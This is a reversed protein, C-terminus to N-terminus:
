ESKIVTKVYDLLTTCDKGKEVNNGLMFAPITSGDLAASTVILITDPNELVYKAAVAVSEDFNKLAAEKDDRKASDYFVFTFGDFKAPDVKSETWALGFKVSQVASPYVTVSSDFINLVAKAAVKKDTHAVEDFGEFFVEENNYCNVAEKFDSTYKYASKYIENVYNLSAISCTNKAKETATDKALMFVPRPNRIIMESVLESEESDTGLIGKFQRFVSNTIIDTTAYGVTKYCSDTIYIGIVNNEDKNEDLKQSTFSLKQPLDNIILEGYKDEASAILDDTLNEYLMFIVNKVPMDTAPLNKIGTMIKVNVNSASGDEIVAPLEQNGKPNKTWDPTKYSIGADLALTLKGKKLEMTVNDGEHKCSVLLAAFLCLGLLKKNKFINKM